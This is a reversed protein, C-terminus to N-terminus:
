KPWFGKSFLILDPNVLNSRVNFLETPCPDFTLGLSQLVVFKLFVTLFKQGRQFIKPFNGLARKPWFGKSIFILNPNVLVNMLLLNQSGALQRTCRVEFRYRRVSLYFIFPANRARTANKTMKPRTKLLTAPFPRSEHFNDSLRPLQELTILCGM